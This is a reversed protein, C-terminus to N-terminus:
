SHLFNYHHLKIRGVPCRSAWVSLLEPLIAEKFVVLFSGPSQSFVAKPYESLPIIIIYSIVYLMDGGEQETVLSNAELTTIIKLAGVIDWDNQYGRQM